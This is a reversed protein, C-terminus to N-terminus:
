FRNRKLIFKTVTLDFDNIFLLAKHLNVRYDYTRSLTYFRSIIKKNSYDIELVDDESNNIKILEKKTRYLKKSNFEYVLKYTM